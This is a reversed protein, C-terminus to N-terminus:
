NVLSGKFKTERYICRYIRSNRDTLKFSHPIEQEISTICRPNKCRVVDIITRPLKPKYKKIVNGSKIEIVTINPDFYGLIPFSLEENGEIKIMDKRGFKESKVNQLLAVSVNIKKELHLLDYIEKGFGAKIHDIVIGDQLADVNLM